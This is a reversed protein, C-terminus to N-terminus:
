WPLLPVSGPVKTEAFMAAVAIMALRGNKLEAMRGRGKRTSRDFTPMGAKMYHPKKVENAIEILGAVAFIQMKGAEPVAAWAGLADSWRSREIGPFFPLMGASQGLQAIPPPDYPPWQRAVSAPARPYRM